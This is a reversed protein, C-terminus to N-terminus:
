TRILTVKSRPLPGRGTAVFTCSALSEGVSSISVAVTVTGGLFLESLIRNPVESDAVAHQAVGEL